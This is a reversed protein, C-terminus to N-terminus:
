DISSGNEVDVEGTSGQADERENRGGQSLLRIVRLCAQVNENSANSAQERIQEKLQLIENRLEECKIRLDRTTNIESEALDVVGAIPSDEDEDLFRLLEDRGGTLLRFRADAIRQGKEVAKKLDEPMNEHGYEAEGLESM